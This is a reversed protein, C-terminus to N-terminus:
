LLFGWPYYLFIPYEYWRREKEEPKEELSIEEKSELPEVKFDVIKEKVETM